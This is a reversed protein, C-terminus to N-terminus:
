FPTIEVGEEWDPWDDQNLPPCSISRNLVSYLFEAVGMGYVYWRSGDGVVIKWADPDEDDTLWYLSYSIDTVGFRLLRDFSIYEGDMDLFSDGVNGSLTFGERGNLSDKLVGLHDSRSEVVGVPGLVAIFEDIAFSSFSEVLRKYDGPFPSGIEVQLRAWDIEGPLNIAEPFKEEFWLCYDMFYERMM